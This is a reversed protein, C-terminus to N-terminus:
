ALLLTAAGCNMNHSDRDGGQHAAQQGPDKQAGHRHLELLFFHGRDHVLLVTGGGHHGAEPKHTRRRAAQIVPCCGCTRRLPVGVHV